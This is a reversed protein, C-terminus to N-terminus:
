ARNDAELDHIPIGFVKSISDVPVTFTSRSFRLLVLTSLDKLSRL